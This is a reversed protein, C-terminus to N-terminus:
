SAHDFTMDEEIFSSILNAWCIAEFGKWEGAGKEIRSGAIGGVEGDALAEFGDSLPVV